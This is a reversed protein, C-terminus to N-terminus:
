DEVCLRHPRVKRGVVVVGAGAGVGCAHIGGALRHPRQELLSLPLPRVRVRVRARARARARVRVRVRVRVVPGLWTRRRSM